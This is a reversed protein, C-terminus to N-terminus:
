VWPSSFIGPMLLRTCVAAPIVPHIAERPILSTGLFLFFSVRLSRVVKFVFISIFAEGLQLGSVHSPNEKTKHQHYKCPSVLLSFFKPIKSFLQSRWVEKKASSVRYFTM